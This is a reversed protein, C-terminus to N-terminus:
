KVARIRDVYQMVKSGKFTDYIKATKEVFSTKDPRTFKVGAAEMKAIYEQRVKAWLERQFNKAVEAAELVIKRQGDDLRDWTELSMVLIDPVAVHEDFTYHNAVKYHSSTYYSPINNEAGDVVGTDMATFLEGYSIQQPLAGLTAMLNEMAESKQVRIKLGSLDAPSDLNKAKTYFSRTGSDFYCIGKLGKDVAMDLLEKGVDGDLVKWMHEGDRFLYPLSYVKALETKTELVATSVKTMDNTGSSVNDVLEQESGLTGGDFVKVVIKGESRTAVEEAFKLIAKSVPHESPLVHPLSLTVKGDAGGDCGSAFLLGTLLGVSLLTSLNSNTM